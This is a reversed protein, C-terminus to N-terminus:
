AVTSALTAFGARDVSWTIRVNNNDLHVISVPFAKQLTGNVYVNTEVLPHSGMGHFINWISAPSSQTHQVINIGPMTM